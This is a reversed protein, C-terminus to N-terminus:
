FRHGAVTCRALYRALALRVIQLQQLANGVSGNLVKADKSPDQEGHIILELAGLYEHGLGQEAHIYIDELHRLLEYAEITTLFLEEDAFCPVSLLYSSHSHSALSEGDLMGGADLLVVGWWYRPVVGGSLMGVLYKLADRRDGEVFLRHFWAYRSIFQLRNTFVDNPRGQLHSLNLSATPSPLFDPPISAM